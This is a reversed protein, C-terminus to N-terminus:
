RDPVQSRGSWSTREGPLFRTGRYLQHNDRIRSYPRLTVPASAGFSGGGRVSLRANAVGWSGLDLDFEPHARRYPLRYLARGNGFDAARIRQSWHGIEPFAERRRTPAFAETILKVSLVGDVPVVSGDDGIPSVRVELGDAEVDTDWNAVAADIRLSRVQRPEPPRHPLAGSSSAAAQSATKKTFFDDPLKSAMDDALPRFEEATLVRDGLRVRVVDSWRVSGSVAMSPATWRLWLLSDDTAADVEGQLVRGDRLQAVVVANEAVSGPDAPTPDDAGLAALLCFAVCRTAPGTM